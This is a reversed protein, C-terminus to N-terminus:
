RVAHRRGITRVTLDISTCVLTCHWNYGSPLRLQMRSRLFKGRKQRAQRGVGRRWKAVAILLCLQRRERTCAGPIAYCINGWSLGKSRTPDRKAGRYPRRLSCFKAAPSRGCGARPCFKVGEGVARRTWAPGPTRARLAWLPALTSLDRGQTRRVKHKIRLWRRLRVAAYSDLARYAKTVTGVNFYNAWGRLTRNLKNVLGTTDQWTGTRATLAHITEVM